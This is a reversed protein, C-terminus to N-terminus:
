PMTARLGVTNYNTSLTKGNAAVGRVTYAYTVGSKGTVDLFSLADVKQGVLKWKSTPVNAPNGKKDKPPNAARYVNYTKANNTTTWTLRIGKTGSTVRRADKMTVYAPTASASATVKATKGAANYGGMTQGDSSVGRVTYTYAVNRTVTTDKYSYSAAGTSSVVAVKKWKTNTTDKRYVYYKTANAAKQWRITIGASDTSIGTLTVKAPTAGKPLTDSVGAANYKASLTKGDSAIGKVTYTYKVGVKVTKDTYSTGSVSKAVTTWKSEGAAKRYVRYTKAGAAAKWTVTINTASHTAKSLEVMAPVMMVTLGTSDYGGKTKGDAACALVTYTYQVGNAVTKDVYKLTSSDVAALKKWSTNKTDKRYVYYKDAGDAKTWTITVGAANASIKGLEVKAPTAGKPLTDSVGAANYKASLTKGDSAIGKVTYTYKVGVKVTKDTYSTGSVSKAVTTWKSEGAAKRYVRYTKAGAAAKWTVTINTASHTAKSLEVMAPVMMVTLGTSDYGGKTKGDAACALVTYTYQVGNAVTKDVYKLTSSDVAALKKWSTNKTDKRYVYYKDAGDAKTWTITVDAANASIKGLEVKAPAIIAPVGAKDYGSKTKGDAALALVTYYYTVGRAATKDAYKLTSSGVTALKVWKSDATKRYVVYTAAGAAKEWTVVITNGSVVANSMKVDAPVAATGPDFGAASVALDAAKFSNITNTDYIYKTKTDQHYMSSDKTQIGCLFLKTPYGVMGQDCNTVDALYNTGNIRVVNWMHSGGDMTGTVDLTEVSGIWGNSEETLDCLYKFAKAYGECVVNTSADGDFVWLLQWPNGYATDKNISSNYSVQDCIYQRYAQLKGYDTKGRNTSVVQKAVAVAEPVDPINTTYLSGGRFEAAVAFKFTIDKRGNDRTCSYAIGITKDHWYLAYPLDALLAQWVKDASTQDPLTGTTQIMTDKRQGNAILILQEKLTNYVAREAATLNGSAAYMAPTGATDFGREYDAIDMGALQYLYGDLLAGDSATETGREAALAQAPLLTLSMVLALLLATLSKTVNKM